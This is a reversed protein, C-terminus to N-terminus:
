LVDASVCWPFDCSRLSLFPSLTEPAVSHVWYHKGILRLAGVRAPFFSM